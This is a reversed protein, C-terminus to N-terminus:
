RSAHDGTTDTNGAGPLLKWTKLPQYYVKGEIVESEVLSFSSVPWLVSQQLRVVPKVTLNKALTVHPIFVRREREFGLPALRDGLREVLGLLSLPVLEPSLWLMKKRPRYDIQGLRLEFASVGTRRVAELIEPFRANDVQGLFVLTMHLNSDSTWRAGLSGCRTKAGCLGTRVVSDPWLAFFLRRSGMGAVGRFWSVYRM